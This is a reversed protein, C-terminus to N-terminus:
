YVTVLDKLDAFKSEGIGPVQKLDEVRRFPGRSQRHQIIRQAMSPGIGPLRELAEAGAQNINVKAATGGWAPPTWALAAAGGAGSGASAGPHQLDKASPVYIKEGDMVPAALNLLDPRGDESAGGAAAIADAVRAGRLVTHVGPNQVAGAVHVQYPAPTRGAAGGAASGAPSSAAGAAVEAKQGSPASAAATGGRGPLAPYPRQWRFALVGVGILLVGLLAYLAWRERESLSM